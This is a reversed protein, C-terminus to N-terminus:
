LVTHSNQLSIDLFCSGYLHEVSMIEQGARGQTLGKIEAPTLVTMIIRRHQRSSVFLKSLITKYIANLQGVIAEPLGPMGPLSASDVEFTLSHAFPLSVRHQPPQRPLHLPLYSSLATAAGLQLNIRSVTQENTSTLACMLLHGVTVVSLGCM